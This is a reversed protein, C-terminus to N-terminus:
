SLDTVPGAIGDAAIGAAQFAKVARRTALGYRADAVLKPDAGLDNLAGQLRKVADDEDGAEWANAPQQARPEQPTSTRTPANFSVM